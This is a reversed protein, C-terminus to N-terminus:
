LFSYICYLVICNLVITLLGSASHWEKWFSSVTIPCGKGFLGSSLDRYILKVELQPPNRVLLAADFANRVRCSSDPINDALLRLLYRLNAKELTTFTSRFIDARGVELQESCTRLISPMRDPVNLRETKWQHILLVSPADLWLIMWYIMRGENM